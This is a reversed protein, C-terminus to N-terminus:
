QAAAALREEATMGSSNLPLTNIVPCDECDTGGVVGRLLPSQRGSTSTNDSRASKWQSKMQQVLIAGEINLGRVQEDPSLPEMNEIFKRYPDPDVKARSTRPLVSRIAYPRAKWDVVAVKQSPHQVITQEILSDSIGLYYVKNGECFYLRNCAPDWSIGKILGTYNLDIPAYLLMGDCDRTLTVWGHDGVVMVGQLTYVGNAPIARRVLDGLQDPEAAHVMSPLIWSSLWTLLVPGLIRRPSM